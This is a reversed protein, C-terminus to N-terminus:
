SPDQAPILGITELIATQVERIGTKDRSSTLLVKPYAAPHKMLEEETERILQAHRPLPIEDCKTLIVQYSAAVKDFEKMMKRDIDKLGHRSDALLYIRKLTPRGLLYGRMVAQWSAVTEKPAQAFGYGPMDVFIFKGAVDFFNLQQTRGPTHSVRATQRNLLANILSSKGANSRGAFAIENLGFPPLDTLNQVGRMFTCPQAFAKFAPDKVQPQEVM